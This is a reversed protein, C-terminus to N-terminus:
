AHTTWRSVEEPDIHPNGLTRLHAISKALDAFPDSSNQEIAAYAAHPAAADLVATFDVIGDGLAADVTRIGREEACDRLHLGALRPGLGRIWEAPDVGSRATWYTDVVIGVAPGTRELLLDFKRKKGIRAFEFSHHHFALKLGQAAYLEALGNLFGAFRGLAAAGGLIAGTSLVSAVILPCGVDKAFAAIAFPDERLRSPKVQMSTVALGSDVVLRAEAPTFGIRALEVAGVGLGRIRRLTGAFDDMLARRVTYTQISLRM